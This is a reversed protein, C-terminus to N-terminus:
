KYAKRSSVDVNTANRLNWSLNSNNAVSVAITYRWLMRMFVVINYKGVANEYVDSDTINSFLIGSGM